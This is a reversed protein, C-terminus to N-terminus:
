YKIKEFVESLSETFRVATKLRPMDTEDKNILVIPTKWGLILSAAPYVSLSTGGVIILDANGIHWNANNWEVDPLQEEYLTVDPRIRGGCECKPVEEKCTFLYDSPYKKGCSVCYNRATTGHIECVEKSGAKQHLGDINQTIVAKLKGKAEMDALIKHTINPEINRVDLKQKYFEHFVKPEKWWCTHSLLYEPEYKEFNVDNQNYLGDASRFDPIGSDTSVGAGGFFVIYNSNEILKNFEDIREGFTM